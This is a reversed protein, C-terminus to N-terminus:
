KEMDRLVVSQTGSKFNTPNLRIPLRLSHPSCFIISSSTVAFGAIFLSLTNNSM